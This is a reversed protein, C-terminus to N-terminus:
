GGFYYYRAMKAKAQHILEYSDYTNSANEDTQAVIRDTDELTLEIERDANRYFLRSQLKVMLFGCLLLLVLEWAIIVIRRKLM